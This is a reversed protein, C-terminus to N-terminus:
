SKVGNDFLDITRINVGQIDSSHSDGLKNLLHSITM